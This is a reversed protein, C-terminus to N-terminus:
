DSDEYVVAEYPQLLGSVRNSVNSLVFDYGKVEYKQEQATFNLAVLFHKNGSTKTYSFVADNEYDVTNFEGYVFQDKYQRRLQLMHKWFSLPSYPDWEQRKVNIAPYTPNANIWPTSTSFGANQSDDWQMPTRCNDRGTAQLWTMVAKLAEPDGNTRENIANYTNLADVDRYEEIPWDEPVNVMGIEQGQYIYLTGSLTALFVALLKASTQRYKPCDSLFRSVSRGGDHNELFATTWGDTGAILRQWKSTVDKLKQLLYPELKYLTRNQGLGMLDFQFCMNLEHRSAGVYELIAKYSQTQGEGVTMIDYKSFGIRNMERLIEHLQPGNEIIKGPHQFESDADTIPADPLGKPKSYIEVTDIRFGDIGKDLWFLIADNYVARRTDLNEWNLDPQEKCFLHLYYEQTAEDWEWASGGFYSAWNNPPRRNGDDDYKAPRWIYWDRQPSTKSARSEKFWAHQDSTHNVVLDFILKMGRVHCEHILNECDALTGYKDYIDRYDSIDYGMDKQPSKYHPCLWIIDIGLLKLYDLKSIIGPIDGIGDGNSDKFSSPYVQYVTGHKWWKHTQESGFHQGIISIGVM